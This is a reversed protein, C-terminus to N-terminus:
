KRFEQSSITSIQPTSHNELLIHDIEYHIMLNQECICLVLMIYWLIDYASCLLAYSKAWKWSSIMLCCLLSCLLDYSKAWINQGIQHYKAWFIFCCLMVYCLILAIGLNEVTLLKLDGHTLQCSKLILSAGEM